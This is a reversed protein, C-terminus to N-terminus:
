LQKGRIKEKGFIAFIEEMQPLIEVKKAWSEKSPSFVEQFVQMDIRAPNQPNPLNMTGFKFLFLNFGATNKDFYANGALDAFFNFKSYGQRVPTPKDSIENWTGQYDGATRPNGTIPVCDLNIAFDCYIKRTPILLTVNTQLEM